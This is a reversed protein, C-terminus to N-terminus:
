LIHDTKQLAVLKTKNKNTKKQPTEHQFYLRVRPVRRSTTSNLKMRRSRAPYTKISSIPVFYIMLQRLPCGPQYILSVSDRQFARVPSPAFFFFFFFFFHFRSVRNAGHRQRRRRKSRELMANASETRNTCQCRGEMRFKKM